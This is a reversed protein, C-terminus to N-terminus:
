SSLWPSEQNQLFNFFLIIILWENWMKKHYRCVCTGPFHFIGSYKSFFLFLSFKMLALLRVKLFFPGFQFNGMMRIFCHLTYFNSDLTFNLPIFHKGCFHIIIKRTCQNPVESTILYFVSWFCIPTERNYDKWYGRCWVDESLHISNM